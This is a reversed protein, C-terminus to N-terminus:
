NLGFFEKLQEAQYHSIMKKDILSGICARQTAPTSYTEV